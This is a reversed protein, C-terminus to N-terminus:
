AWYPLRKRFKSFFPFTVIWGAITIIFAAIYSNLRPPNGMLPDRVIELLHYLPNLGVFLVRRVGELSDPPWFLPTVFMAIQVISQIMQQVDRFRMSFTGLLLAIWVGNALLVLLGPIAAFAMLSLKEPAYITFILLYVIMNHLFIVLNRWVLSYALVSYEFDMQRLLCAGSIFLSSGEIIINSLLVWVVMGSVLFPLYEQTQKSLLGSGVGGLAIVFVLLSLSTWFPGIVTRRYRRKVELWGLRGWMDSKFLGAVLDHAADTMLGSSKPLVPSITMPQFAETQKDLQRSGGRLAFAGCFRM